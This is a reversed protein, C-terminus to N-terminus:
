LIDLNWHRLDGYPGECYNNRLNSMFRM